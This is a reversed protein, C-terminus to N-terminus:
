FRKEKKKLLRKHTTLVCSVYSIGPLVGVDRDKLLERFYEVRVDPKMDWTGSDIDLSVNVADRKPTM